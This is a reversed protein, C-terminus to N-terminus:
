REILFNAITNHNVILMPLVSSSCSVPKRDSSIKNKITNSVSTTVFTPATPIEDISPSPSNLAEQEYYNRLHSNILEESPLPLQEIPLPPLAFGTAANSSSASPIAPVGGLISAIEMRLRSLEEELKEIKETDPPASVANVSSMDVVPLAVDTPLPLPLASEPSSTTSVSNNSKHPTSYPSNHIITTTKPLEDKTETEKTTLRGRARKPQPASQV